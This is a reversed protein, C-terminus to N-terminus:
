KLFLRSPIKVSGFPATFIRGTRGSSFARIAADAGTAPSFCLPRFFIDTLSDYWRGMKLMPSDVVGPDCCNVRIGQPFLTKSLGSAYETILKKSLAYARLRTFDKREMDDARKQFPFWHRTASTTFVIAGGKGISPILLENLLRTNHYNVNLTDEHGDPDTRYEGNMTGANNIVADVGYRLIEDAAQTVSESSSLDLTVTRVGKAGARLVTDAIKAARQTSRCALILHHRGAALRLAIEQGIAGTAGTVLIKM